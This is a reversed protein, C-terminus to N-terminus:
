FAAQSTTPSAWEQAPEWEQDQFPVDWLSPKPPEAATGAKLRLQDYKERFTPMSLINTKWFDNRQSWELVRMAEAPDRGDKQVLLRAADLWAKTITPPRSGNEVVLEALRGCLIESSSLPKEDSPNKLLIGDRQTELHSGQQTETQTEYGMQTKQQTETQTKSHTEMQSGVTTKTGKPPRGGNRGNAVNREQMAIVSDRSRQYIAQHRIRYTEGDVAEWFGADLLQQVAEPHKAFRRLDDAPIYLDLLKRNSWGLGEVHLRFAADSLGWADDAFDDSLKTWTM